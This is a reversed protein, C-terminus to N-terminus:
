HVRRGLWEAAEEGRMPRSFLFGQAEDCDNARVFVGQAETEIGEAVVRLNLRKAMAIIAETLAIDDPSGPVGSIFRRDVKLYELPLQKLLHLSSSGTGFDDISLRVGLRRLRHMSDLATPHDDMVALESIEFEIREPPIHHAALM